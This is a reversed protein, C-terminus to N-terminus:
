RSKVFERINKAPYGMVTNNDEVDSIVGSKGGIKVNNGIKLHGSLGAQGGIKVYNGIATSGAIGVQAAIMCFNGIKVNHAIQVQNDISSFEGIVTDGLSGRDLTCFSGIQVDNEIIVRGIHPLKFKKKNIFKFGFGTQGILTGSKIVVNDGVLSNEIIVNSGILCNKGIHVGKKILVNNGIKTNSGIKVTKDILCNNGFLISKNFYKKLKSFNIFNILESDNNSEPYFLSVIKYFDILPNKSIVPITNKNIYKLYKENVICALAKTSQAEKLYNLNDFFTIDTSKSEKLNKIGLIKKNTSINKSYNCLFFIDKLLLFKINKKFFHIESM